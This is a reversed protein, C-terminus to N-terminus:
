QGDGGLRLVPGAGLEVLRRSVLLPDRDFVVAAVDRGEHDIGLDLVLGRHHHHNVLDEAHRVPHLRDGVLEGGVAVDGDSGVQEGAHARIAAAGLVEGAHAIHALSDGLKRGVLDGGVQVGDGVVTLLQGSGVALERDHTEAPAAALREPESGVAFRGPLCSPGVWPRNARAKPVAACEAPLCAFARM